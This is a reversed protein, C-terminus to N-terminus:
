PSLRRVADAVMVGNAVAPVAAIAGISLGGGDMVAADVEIVGDLNLCSGHGANFAGGAEMSRVAAIAAELAGGGRKLVEAGDVTALHLGKRYEAEKEAGMSRMAGAGGHVVITWDKTDVRMAKGSFIDPM